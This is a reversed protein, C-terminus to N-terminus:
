LNLSRVINLTQKRFIQDKWFSMRTHSYRRRLVYVEPEREQKRVM